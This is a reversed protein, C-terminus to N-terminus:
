VEDEGPWRKGFSYKYASNDAIWNERTLPKQSDDPVSISLLLYLTELPTM